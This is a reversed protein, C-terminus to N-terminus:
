SKAIISEALDMALETPMSAALRLHRCACATTLAECCQVLQMNHLVTVLNQNSNQSTSQPRCMKTCQGQMNCVTSVWCFQAQKCISSHNMQIILGHWEVLKDFKGWYSISDYRDSTMVLVSLAERSLYVGETSNKDLLPHINVTDWLKVTCTSDQTSVSNLKRAYCECITQMISHRYTMFTSLLMQVLGGPGLLFSREIHCRLSQTITGAAAQGTEIHRLPQVLVSMKGQQFIGQCSHCHRLTYRNPWAMQSDFSPDVGHSAYHIWVHGAAM